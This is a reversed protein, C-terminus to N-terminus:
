KWIMNRLPITTELTRYRYHQWETGSSSTAVNTWVSSLNPSFSSSVVDKEYNKNRTIVILKVARLQAWSTFNTPTTATWCDVAGDNATSSGGCSTGGDDLGYLAKMNIVDDAIEQWATGTSSCDNALNDCMTLKSNRIAYARITLGTYDTNVGPKPGLNYLRVTLPSTAVYDALGSTTNMTASTTLSCSTVDKYRSYYTGTDFKIRFSEDTTPMVAADNCVGSEPMSTIEVVTCQPLGTAPAIGAMLALDGQHFGARNPFAATTSTVYFKDSAQALALTGYGLAGPNDSFVIHLTDTGSDGAPIGAPNIVIPAFQPANTGDFTVDTTSRDSNHLKTTNNACYALAGNAEETVFGYGANRIDSQLTNMSISLNTQADGGTTASRRFSESQLLAELMFVTAILGIAVAVMLEVLSFGAQRIHSPIAM